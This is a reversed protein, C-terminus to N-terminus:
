VASVIRSFRFVKCGFSRRQGPDHELFTSTCTPNMTLNALRLLRSFIFAILPSTTRLLSCVLSVGETRAGTIIRGCDKFRGRQREQRAITPNEGRDEGSKFM